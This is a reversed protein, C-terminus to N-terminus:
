FRGGGIYYNKKRNVSFTGSTPATAPTIQVKIMSSSTQAMDSMPKKGQKDMM